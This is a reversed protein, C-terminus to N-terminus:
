EGKKNHGSDGTPPVNSGSGTQIEHQEKQDTGRTPEVRDIKPSCSLFVTLFLIITLLCGPHKDGSDQSHATPPFTVQQVKPRTRVHQVFQVQGRGGGRKANIHRKQKGM